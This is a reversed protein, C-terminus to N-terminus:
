QNWSISKVMIESKELHKRVILAVKGYTLHTREIVNEYSLVIAHKNM